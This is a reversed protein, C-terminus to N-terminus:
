KPRRKLLGYYRIFSCINHQIADCRIMENTLSWIFGGKHMGETIQMSMQYKIYENLSREVTEGRKANQEPTMMNIYSIMAESRCAAACSKPSHGSRIEEYVIDDAYKQYKESLGSKEIAQMMWHDRIHGAMRRLRFHYDIVMDILRNFPRMNVLKIFECLGLTAEGPYFESTFPTSVDYEINRKHYLLQGSSDTCCWRIYNMLEFAVRLYKEDDQKLNHYKMLALIALGNGGLKAHGNQIVVMHDKYPKIHKRIMWDLALKSKEVYKKKPVVENVILMAWICGAHRLINYGPIEEKTDPGKYGYIFKGDDKVMKSLLDAGMVARRLLKDKKM